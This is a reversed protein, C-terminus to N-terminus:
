PSSPVVVTDVVHIVGNSTPIDAQIVKANDVKVGDLGVSITLDAGNLTPLKMGDTLGESWYTDAVVHYKLVDSLATRNNILQTVTDKISEFAQDVPAFLTYPGTTELPGFLRGLVLLGFLDQFDTEHQAIYEGINSDPELLVDDIMHVVGNALSHDIGVLVAGNITKVGNDYVKFSLTEGNFNKKTDKDRVYQSLVIQDVVHGQLVQKLATSNTALGILMNSPLKASCVSVQDVVHGQLVEKLATSNTALGILMNSPLKASCAKVQDVVHGQLVKVDGLTKDLGTGVVFGSLTTLGEDKLFQLITRTDQQGLVTLPSIVAAMLTLLVMM